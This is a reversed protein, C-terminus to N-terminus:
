KNNENQIQETTLRCDLIREKTSRGGGGGGWDRKVTSFPGRTRIMINRRIVSDRLRRINSEKRQTKRNLTLFDKCIEVYM